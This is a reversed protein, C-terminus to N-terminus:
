KSTTEHPARAKLKQDGTQGMGTHMLIDGDWKDDYFITSHDSVIILTGTQHSRRMGGQPSCKFVSCIEENTLVMGQKLGPNFPM